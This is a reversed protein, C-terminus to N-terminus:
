AASAGSGSGATDTPYPQCHRTGIAKELLLIRSPTLEINEGTGINDLISKVTVGDKHARHAVQFPSADSSGDMEVIRLEFRRFVDRFEELRGRLFDARVRM